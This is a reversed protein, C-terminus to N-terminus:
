KWTVSRTPAFGHVFAIVFQHISLCLISNIIEHKRYAVPPPHQSSAKKKLKKVMAALLHTSKRVDQEWLWKKLRVQRVVERWSKSAHKDAVGVSNTAFRPACVSRLINEWAHQTM